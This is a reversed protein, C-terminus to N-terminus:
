VVHSASINDHKKQMSNTSVLVLLFSTVVEGIIHYLPFINHINLNIFDFEMNLHIIFRLFHSPGFKMRTWTDDRCPSDASSPPYRHCQISWDGLFSCPSSSFKLFGGFFCFRMLMMLLLYIVLSSVTCFVCCDIWCYLFCFVSHLLKLLKSASATLFFLRGWLGTQFVNQRQMNPEAQLFNFVPFILHRDLFPVMRRRHSQGTRAWASWLPSIISLYLVWGVTELMLGFWHIM